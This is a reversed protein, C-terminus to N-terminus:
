KSQQRYLQQRYSQPAMGSWRRFAARFNAVDRYGMQLGIAAINLHTTLLLHRAREFRIRDLSVQFSGGEAALRRRLTRPSLSLREAITSLGAKGEHQRLLNEVRATVSTETQLAKIRNECLENMYQSYEPHAFPIMRAADVAALSLRNEPQDYQIDCGLKDAWYQQDDADKVHAFSVQAFCLSTGVLERSVALLMAFCSEVEFVSTITDTPAPQMVLQLQDHHERLSFRGSFSLLRSYKVAVQWAERLTTASMMAVGLIGFDKLTQRLGHKLALYPDCNLNAIRVYLTLEQHLSLRIAPDAFSDATLALGQLLEDLDLQQDHILDDALQKIELGLWIRPEDTNQHM